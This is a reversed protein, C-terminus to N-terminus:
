LGLLVTTISSQLQKNQAGNPIKCGHVDRKKIIRLSGFLEQLPSYDTKLRRSGELLNFVSKLIKLLEFDIDKLMHSCFEHCSRDYKTTKLHM